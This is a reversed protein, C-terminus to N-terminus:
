QYSVFITFTTFSTTSPHIYPNNASIHLQAIADSNSTEPEDNSARQSMEPTAGANKM